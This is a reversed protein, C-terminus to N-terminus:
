LGGRIPGAQITYRETGAALAADAIKEVKVPSGKATKSVGTATNVRQAQVDAAAQHVVISAQGRNDALRNALNKLAAMSQTYEPRGKAALPMQVTMSELTRMSRTQGSQSDTIPTDLLKVPGASSRLKIPLHQMSSVVDTQVSRALEIEQDLVSQLKTFREGAQAAAAGSAGTGPATAIAPAGCGAPPNQTLRGLMCGLSTTSSEVAACGALVLAAATVLSLKLYPM